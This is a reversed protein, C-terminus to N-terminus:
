TLAGTVRGSSNRSFRRRTPGDDRNSGMPPLDTGSGWDDGAQQGSLYSYRKVSLDANVITAVGASSGAIFQAQGVILEGTVQSSGAAQGAVEYFYGLIGSVQAQGAAAGQIRHAVALAGSVSARGFSASVPKILTVLAGSAAAQGAVVLARLAVGSLDLWRGAKTSPTAEIWPTM